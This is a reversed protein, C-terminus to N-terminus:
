MDSANLLECCFQSKQKKATKCINLRNSYFTFAKKNDKNEQNWLQVTSGKAQQMTKDFM